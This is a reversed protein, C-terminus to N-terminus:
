ESRKPCAQEHKRLAARVQYEKGCHACAMRAGAGGGGCGAPQADGGFLVEGVRERAVRRFADWRATALTSVGRFTRWWARSTTTPTACSTACGIPRAKTATLCRFCSPGVAARVGESRSSHRPPAHGRRLEHLAARSLTPRLALWPADHSPPVTSGHFLLIVLRALSIHWRGHRRRTESSRLHDDCPVMGRVRARRACLGVAALTLAAGCAAGCERAAKYPQRPGASTAATNAFSGIVPTIV